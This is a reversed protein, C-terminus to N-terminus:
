FYVKQQDISVNHIRSVAFHYSLAVSIFVTAVVALAGIIFLSQRPKVFEVAKKVGSILTDM